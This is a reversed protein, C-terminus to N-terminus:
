ISSIIKVIDKELSKEPSEIIRGIENGKYYFIFTPVLEVNMSSVSVEGATKNSNVGLIIIQGSEMDLSEAIKIFRPVERQSDSCWTGLVILIELDPILGPNVESLAREDLSYSDYESDFWYAVPSAILTDITCYGILVDQNVNEDFIIEATKEDQSFIPSIIMLLVFLISLKKM